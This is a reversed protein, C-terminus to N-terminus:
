VAEAIPLLAFDGITTLVFQGIVWGERARLLWKRSM